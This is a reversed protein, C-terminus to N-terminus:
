TQYSPGREDYSFGMFQSYSMGEADMIRADLTAFFVEQQSMASLARSALNLKSADSEAKVKRMRTVPISSPDPATVNTVAGMEADAKASSAEAQPAAGSSAADETM